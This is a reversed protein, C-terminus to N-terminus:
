GTLSLHSYRASATIEVNAADCFTAPTFTFMKKKSDAPQGMLENFVRTSPVAGSYSFKAVGTKCSAKWRMQSEIGKIMLKRAQEVKQTVQSDSMATTTSVQKVAGDLQQQLDLVKAILVDKDLDELENASLRVRKVSNSPMEQLKRKTPPM